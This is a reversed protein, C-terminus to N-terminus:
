IMNESYVFQIMDEGYLEQIAIMADYISQTFAFDNITSPSVIAIQLPEEAQPEEEVPEEAPACATLVFVLVLALTLIKYLKKM